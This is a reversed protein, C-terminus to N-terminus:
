FIVMTVFTVMTVLTISRVYRKEIEFIRCGIIIIIITKFGRPLWKYVFLYIFLTVKKTVYRLTKRHWLLSMIYYAGSVVIQSDKQKIKWM